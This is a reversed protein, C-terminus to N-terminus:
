KSPLTKCNTPIFIKHPKKVIADNEDAPRTLGSDYYWGLFKYGKLEPTKLDKILTGETVSVSSLGLQQWLLDPMSDPKSFTIDYSYSNEIGLKECFPCDFKFIDSLTHVIKHIVKIFKDMFNFTTNLDNVDVDQAADVADQVDDYVGKAAVGNNIDAALVPCVSSVVSFLLLLTLIISITKKM